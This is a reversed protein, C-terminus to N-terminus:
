VREGRTRRLHPPLDSQVLEADEYRCGAMKFKDVCRRVLDDRKPKTGHANLFHEAERTMWIKMENLLNKPLITTRLPRVQSAELIVDSFAVTATHAWELCDERFTVDRIGIQAPDIQEKRGGEMPIGWISLKREGFAKVLTREANAVALRRLKSEEAEIKLLTALESFTISQKSDQEHWKVIEIALEPGCPSAAKNRFVTRGDVIEPEGDWPATSTALHELLKLVDDAPPTDRWREIFRRDRLVWEDWTETQGFAIWSLAQTPTWWPAGDFRSPQDIM